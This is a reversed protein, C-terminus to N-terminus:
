PLKGKPGSLKPLQFHKREEIGAHESPKFKLAKGTALYHHASQTFKDSTEEGSSEVGEKPEHPNANQFLKSHHKEQEDTMDPRHSPYSHKSSDHNDAKVSKDLIEWQGNTHKILKEM